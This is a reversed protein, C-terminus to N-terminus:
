SCLLIYLRLLLFLRKTPNNGNPLIYYRFYLVIIVLMFVCYSMDPTNEVTQLIYQIFHINKLLEGIAKTDALQEFRNENSSNNQLPLLLKQLEPPFNQLLNAFDQENLNEALEDDDIESDTLNSFFKELLQMFNELLHEPIKKKQSIYQSWIEFQVNTLKSM